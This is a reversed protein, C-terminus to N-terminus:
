LGSAVPLSMRIRAKTPAALVVVGLGREFGVPRRVVIADGLREQWADLARREPERDADDFLVITGAEAHDLAQYLMGARGGLAAPPGDVLVLEPPHGADVTGTDLLYAPYLGGARVRAVLPALRLSVRDGGGCAALAEASAAAFAPDHDVSTVTCGPVAAAARALVVTSVGSGFELVHHPRVVEVLATLLRLLDPAAAWGRTRDTLPAWSVDVGPAMALADDLLGLARAARPPLPSPSAEVTREGPAIM